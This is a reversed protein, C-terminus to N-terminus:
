RIFLNIMKSYIRMRISHYSLASKRIVLNPNTETPFAFGKNLSLDFESKFRSWRPCNTGGGDFGNNKVHSIVPFLSVKNQMFQNYCFRISWSQNLGTKWGKLMCFCDSGGWQNFAKAYKEVEKWEKLEWDCSEWRDKWTAWGWSSSRPCFYADFHYDKPIKVRNSYGCVSFVYDDNEYRSLGQNMFSLFNKGVILDDEIVIACGSDNIVKTVGNIVSCALGKNTDAFFYNLSKFGTISKVYGRIKQVKISDEPIGVKPGDVFVILDSDSAEINDKISSICKKLSDFRNYAFVVIPALRM